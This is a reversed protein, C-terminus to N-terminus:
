HGNNYFRRIRDGPITFYGSQCLHFQELQPSVMKVCSVKGNNYVVSKYIDIDNGKLISILNKYINEPSEQYYRDQFSVEPIRRVILELPVKVSRYYAPWSRFQNLIALDKKREKPVSLDKIQIAELISRELAYTRHFSCGSGIPQIPYDQHTFSVFYVPIGLDSTIDLIIIDENFIEEVESILDRLYVPITNKKVKKVYHKERVFSSYIFCSLADREILESLGHISAEMENTGIAAGNSSCFKKYQKTNEFEYLPNISIFPIWGEHDKYLHNGKVWPMVHNNGVREIMERFPTSIVTKKGIASLVSYTQYNLVLDNLIETTLLYHELAEYQASLESQFGIGKGNGRELNVNHKILYCISTYSSIKKTIYSLDLANITQEFNYQASSHNLFREQDAFSLM